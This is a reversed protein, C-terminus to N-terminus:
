KLVLKVLGYEQLSYIVHEPAILVLNNLFCTLAKLLSPTVVLPINERESSDVSSQASAISGNKYAHDGSENFPLRSENFPLRSENFPLRNENFPLRNENFSLRSEKVPLGNENFQLRTENFPFSFNYYFYGRTYLAALIVDLERYFGIEDLFNLLTDTPNNETQSFRLLLTLSGDSKPSTHSILNALFYAANERVISAEEHDIVTCAAAELIDINNTNVSNLIETCSRLSLCLGSFLQLVGARLVLDRSNWLALLTPIINQGGYEDEIFCIDWTQM